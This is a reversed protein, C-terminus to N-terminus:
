TSAGRGGGSQIVKVQVPRIANVAYAGRRWDHREPQVEGDSSRARSCLLREGPEDPVTWEYQWARWAFPHQTTEVEAAEYTRGGDTSIEVAAIDAGGWAFGRITVSDGAELSQGDLPSGIHSKIAIPGLPRRVVLDKEPIWTAYDETQFYGDFQRTVCRIQTLWKVSAMGYWGPVVLRAPYGHDETLPEGNMHTAILVEPSMAKDLPLSRAYPMQLRAGDNTEVVGRDAGIFVVEVVEEGPGAEELVDRLPVGEWDATGIAGAEWPVGSAKEGLTTRSNGACEITARVQRRSFRELGGFDYERAVSVEGEVSLRWRAEELRPVDFHNRVFFAEVPTTEADFIEPPGELNDPKRSRYILERSERREM